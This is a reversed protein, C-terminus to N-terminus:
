AAALLMSIRAILDKIITPVSVYPDESYKYLTDVPQMHNGTIRAIFPKEKDSIRDVFVLLRDNSPLTNYTGNVLEQFDGNTFSSLTNDASMFVIVTRRVTTPETNNDSDKSCATLLLLMTISIFFYKM